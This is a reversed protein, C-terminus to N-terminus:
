EGDTRRRGRSLHAGRKSAAERTAAPLHALTRKQRAPPAATRRINSRAAAKQRSGPM